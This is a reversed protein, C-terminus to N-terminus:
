WGEEGVLPVFRVIGLSSRKWEIGHRTFRVLEQEEPPGIPIVLRGGDPDLQARLGDPVAPGGATVMIGRFPAQEPWGLTGDAVRVHVNRYGIERLIHQAQEALEAHREITYVEGEAGVVEALVATQYGSGTGVELVRDGPRAALAETMLAVIYPQSITQDCGIPLAGDEHALHRRGPPVFCHRPVTELAALTYPDGVGRRRIQTQVMERRRDEERSKDMM